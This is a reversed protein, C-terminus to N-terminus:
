RSWLYVGGGCGRRSGKRGGREVVNMENGGMRGGEGMRRSGRRGGREVVNKENKGWEEVGEGM